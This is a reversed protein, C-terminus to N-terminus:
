SVVAEVLASVNEVPTDKSIGHGLNFVFGTENHYVTLIDRAAQQIKEPTALLMCPDLNGQLAVRDGVQKKASVLDMTWDLGLADCGSDAM